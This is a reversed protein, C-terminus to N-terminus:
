LHTARKRIDRPSPLGAQAFARRLNSASRFGSYAAIENIRLHSYETGTLLERALDVRSRRLEDAPTSGETAFLRQLQRISVHMESALVTVDFDPDARRAILLSRAVDIDSAARGKLGLPFAAELLVGFVMEAVLQEIFYEAHPTPGQPQTLLANVFSQFGRGLTSMPLRGEPARMNSEIEELANWPVWVGTVQGSGAATMSVARYPHLFVLNGAPVEEEHQGASQIVMPGSAVLITATETGDLPQPSWHWAARREFTHQTVLVNRFRLAATLGQREGRLLGTVAGVDVTGVHARIGLQAGGFAVATAAGM